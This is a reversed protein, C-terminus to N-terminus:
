LKTIHLASSPSMAQLPHSSSDHRAINLDVLAVDRDVACACAYETRADISLYIPLYAHLYTSM